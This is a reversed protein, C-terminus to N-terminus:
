RVSVTCIGIEEGCRPCRITLDTAGMRHSRMCRMCRALRDGLLDRRRRYAGPIGARRRADSVAQESMNISAAIALDTIQPDEEIAARVLRVTEGNRRRAM